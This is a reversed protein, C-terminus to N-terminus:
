WVRKEEGTENLELNMACQMEDLSFKGIRRNPGNLYTKGTFSAVQLVTTCANNEVCVLLHVQVTTRWVVRPFHTQVLDRRNAYNGTGSIWREGRQRESFELREKINM